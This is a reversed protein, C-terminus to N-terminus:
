LKAALPRVDDEGIGIVLRDLATHRATKAIGPLRAIRGGAHQHLAVAVLGRHLDGGLRGLFGLDDGGMLFPAADAGDHGRHLEVLNLGQDLGADVFARPQDRAAGPPGPM